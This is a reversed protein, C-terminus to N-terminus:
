PLSLLALCISATPLVFEYLRNPNVSIKVKLQRKLHLKNMRWTDYSSLRSVFLLLQQRTPFQIQGDLM